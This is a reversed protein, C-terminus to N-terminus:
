DPVESNLKRIWQKQNMKQQRLTRRTLMFFASAVLDAGIFIENDINQFFDRGYLVTFGSGDQPATTHVIQAPLDSKSYAGGEKKKAFFHDEIIVKRGNKSQIHYGSIGADEKLVFSVGLIETCLVGLTYAKEARFAPHITITVM